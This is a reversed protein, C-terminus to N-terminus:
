KLLEIAKELQVDTTDTDTLKVEVDPQIGKKHIDNGAPTFYKEITVKIATEDTMELLTQVVGKGYTKEGVITGRKNDKVAGVLIESASASNGNCLVVLPIDTIGDIKSKIYKKKGNKDSTYYIMDGKPLLSDAVAELSTTVGGGNDRVDIILGKIGKEVLADFHRTFELGTEVAFQSIAIYGINDELVQSDVSDIQISKRTITLDVEEGTEKKLVTVVVDTGEEGQINQTAEELQAGAFPTGNVKTLVDGGVIGANQAPSGEFVDVVLITNDEVYNQVTVGIGCYSSNILENFEKLDEKDLYTTYPDGISAVYAKTASEIAKEKDYDGYYYNELVGIVANLKANAGPKIFLKGNYYASATMLSLAATVLVTVCITYFKNNKM